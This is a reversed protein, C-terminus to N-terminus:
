VSIKTRYSFILKKTATIVIKIVNFFFIFIKKWEANITALGEKRIKDPQKCGCGDQNEDGCRTVKSALSFVYDWRDKPSMELAQKYQQKDILLKSCKFCVCRLIKLIHTFYQIYFVPRALEIHGFYGPCLEHSSEDTPCLRGFDLVGM